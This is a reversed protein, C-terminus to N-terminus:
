EDFFPVVVPSSARLDASTSTQCLLLWHTQNVDSPLQEGGYQAVDLIAAGTPPAKAEAGAGSPSPVKATPTAPVPVSPQAPATERPTNSRCSPITATLGLFLLNRLLKM